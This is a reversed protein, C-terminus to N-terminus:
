NSNDSSDQNNSPNPTSAPTASPSAPTSPTPAVPALAPANVGRMNEPIQSEAADADSMHKAADDDDGVISAYHAWQRDTLAVGMNATNNFLQTTTPDDAGFRRNYADVTGSFKTDVDAQMQKLADGAVVASQLQTVSQPMDVGTKDRSLLALLGPINIPQSAPDSPQTSSAAVQYGNLMQGLMVSIITKSAAVEASAQMAAAMQQDYWLPHLTALESQMVPASPSSPTSQQMLQSRLSQADTGAQQYLQVASDLEQSVDTRATDADSLLTNLQGALQSITISSSDGSSSDSGIIQQQLKQQATIQDQISAWGTQMSQIQLDLAAVASQLAAQQASAADLDTKMQDAQSALTDLQADADGAAKRLQAAQQADQLQKDGQEGESQRQLTEAQTISDERTQKLAAADQKNKDLSANLSDIKTQLKALTISDATSDAPGTGQLAEEKSRITQVSATPDYGQLGAVSAQAGTLQIGLKELDSITRTIQLEKTRLDSMLLTAREFRVQAQHARILIRMQPSLGNIAALQDYQSQIQQLQSPDSVAGQAAEIKPIEAAAQADAKHEQTECGSLVILGTGGVMAAWAARLIMSKLMFSMELLAGGFM